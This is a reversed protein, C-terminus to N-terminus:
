AGGGRREERRSWVSLGVVSSFDWLQTRDDWQRAGGPGGEEALVLWLTSIGSSLGIMGNGLGGAGGGGGRGLGVM